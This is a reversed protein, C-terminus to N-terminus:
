NQGKALKAEIRKLMPPVIRKLTTDSPEDDFLKRVLPYVDSQKRWDPDPHDPHPAGGLLRCEKEVRQEVLGLNYKPPRGGPHKESPQKTSFTALPWIRLVDEVCVEFHDLKRGSSLNVASGGESIEAFKWWEAEIPAGLPGKARVKGKALAVKLAVCAARRLPDIIGGDDRPWRCILGDEGSEQNETYRPWTCALIEQRICDELELRESIHEVVAPALAWPWGDFPETTKM